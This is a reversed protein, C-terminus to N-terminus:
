QWREGGVVDLFCFARTGSDVAAPLLRIFISKGNAEVAGEGAQKKVCLDLRM